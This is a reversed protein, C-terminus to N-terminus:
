RIIKMVTNIDDRVDALNKVGNRGTIKENKMDYKANIKFRIIPDNILQDYLKYMHSYNAMQILGNASLFLLIHEGIKLTDEGFLIDREGPVGTPGSEIMVLVQSKPLDYDNRLFEEVQIHAITHFSASKVLPYEKSAVTGIVICDSIATLIKENWPRRVTNLKLLDVGIKKLHSVITDNYGMSILFKENVQDPTLKIKDNSSQPVWGRQRMIKYVPNVQAEVTSFILFTLLLATCFKKLYCM